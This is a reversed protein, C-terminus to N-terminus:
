EKPLPADQSQPTEPARRRKQRKEQKALERKVMETLDYQEVQHPPGFPRIVTLRRPKM